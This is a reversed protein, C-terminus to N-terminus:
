NHTLSSGKFAEAEKKQQQLTQLDLEVWLAVM